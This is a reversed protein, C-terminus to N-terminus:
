GERHFKPQSPMPKGPNSGSSSTPVIPGPHDAAYAPQGLEAYCRFFRSNTLLYRVGSLFALRFIAPMFVSVTLLGHHRCLLYQFLLAIEQFHRVKCSSLNM